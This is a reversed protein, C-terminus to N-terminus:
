EVNMLSESNCQQWPSTPGGDLRWSGEAQERHSKSGFRGRQRGAAQRGAQERNSKSGIEIEGAQPPAAGGSASTIPPAAMAPMGLLGAPAASACRCLLPM